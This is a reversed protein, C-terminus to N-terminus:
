DTTQAMKGDQPELTQDCRMPTPPTRTTLLQRGFFDQTAPSEGRSRGDNCHRQESATRRIEDARKHAARMEDITINPFLSDCRWIWKIWPGPAYNKNFEIPGAAAPGIGCRRFCPSSFSAFAECGVNSNPKPMRKAAEKHHRKSEALEAPTMDAVYKVKAPFSHSDPSSSTPRPNAKPGGSKPSTRVYFEALEDIKLKRKSNIKAAFKATAENWIQTVRGGSLKERKAIEVGSKGDIRDLVIRRERKDLIRDAAVLARVEFRLDVDEGGLLDHYTTDEEGLPTDLSLSPGFLRFGRVTKGDENVFYARSGKPRHKGDIHWVVEEHCARAIPEWAYTGLSWGANPDFKDRCEEVAL